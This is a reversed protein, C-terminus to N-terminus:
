RAVRFTHIQGGAHVRLLYIGAPYSSLSLEFESLGSLRQQYLRMGSLAFLEVQELAVGSLLLRQDRAFYRYSPASADPSDVPTIEPTDPQTPKEPEKEEFDKEELAQVETPAPAPAPKSAGLFTLYTQELNAPWLDYTSSGQTGEVRLRYVRGELLRDGLTNKISPSTIVNPTSSARLASVRTTALLLREDTETDVLYVHISETKTDKQPARLFHLRLRLNPNAELDLQNFPALNTEPNTLAETYLLDLSGTPPAQIQISLEESLEFRQVPVSTSGRKAELRVRYSGPALGAPISLQFYVLESGREAFHVLSAATTTTLVSGSADLLQLSLSLDPTNGTLNRLLLGIQAPNGATLTGHLPQALPQIGREVGHQETVSYAGAKARLGLIPSNLVERWPEWGSDGKRLSSLLRLEYRGDSLEGVPLVDQEADYIKQDPQLPNYGGKPHYKSPFIKLLRGEADYLGYGYDGTFNKGTRNIIHESTVLLRTKSQKVLQIYSEIQATLRPQLLENEKDLPASGPKNPHLAILQLGSSFAPRTQGNFEAGLQSPNIARLSFYGDSQGEWGFNMHFLGRSDMGDIVWAHGLGKGNGGSIYLPFGARLESEVFSVLADAGIRSFTLLESSEYDFQERMARPVKESFSGSYRGTYHMDVTIGADLMLRSVSTFRPLNDPYPKGWGGREYYEKRGYVPLMVNWDYTHTSFDTTGLGFSKNPHTYTGKGQLPWKHYYMIQAMAVAVCGSPTHQSGSFPTFQNYAPGIQGWKCKLLPAIPKKQVPQPFNLVRAQDVSSAQPLQLFLQRLAEPLSDLVFQGSTSYGLIEGRSDEKNVLVFGESAGVNYIYFTPAEATQLATLSRATQPAVEQLFRGAIQSAQQPTVPRAAAFSIASFLLLLYLTSRQIPM